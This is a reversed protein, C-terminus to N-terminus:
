ASSAETDLFVQCYPCWKGEVDRPSFSVTGCEMHWIGRTTGPSGVAGVDILTYIRHGTM